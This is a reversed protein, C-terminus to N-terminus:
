GLLLIDEVPAAPGAISANAYLADLGEWKNKIVRFINEIDYQAKIDINTREWSCPLKSIAEEDCDAVWIEAGSQAFLKAISLGIGGAGASILVRQIM